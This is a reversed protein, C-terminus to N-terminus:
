GLSLVLVEVDVDARADIAARLRLDGTVFPEALREALAVFLADGATLNERLEWARSRLPLSPFLGIPVDALDALAGAARSARVGGALVLRRLAALVEFVVVDPAALEGEAAILRTVTPEGHAGLLYDVVASSDIVTV